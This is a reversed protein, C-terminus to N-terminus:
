FRQRHRVAWLFARIINWCEFSTISARHELTCLLVNAEMTYKPRAPAIAYGFRSGRMLGRCRIDIAKGPFSPMAHWRASNKRLTLRHRVDRSRIFSRRKKWGDDMSTNTRPETCGSIGFKGHGVGCSPM